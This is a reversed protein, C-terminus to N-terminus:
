SFESITNVISWSCSGEFLQGAGSASYKDEHGVYFSEKRKDNLANLYNDYTVELFDHSVVMGTDEVITLNVFM